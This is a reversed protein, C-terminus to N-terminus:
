PRPRERAPSTNPSHFAETITIDQKEGTAANRAAVHLDNNGDIRFVVEIKPDGAAADDLGVLDFSGLLRNQEADNAEGQRVKIRVHSQDQTTTTVIVSVMCPAVWNKPILRYFENGVLQLGISPRPDPLKWGKFDEGTTTSAFFEADSPVWQGPQAVEREPLQWQQYSDKSESVGDFPHSPRPGPAPQPPPMEPLPKAAYDQDYTSTGQFPPSQPLPAPQAVERQPLQWQQYSDKSESVGDFPHSPRPGPAPQPPPM